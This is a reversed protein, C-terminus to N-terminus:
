ARFRTAAILLRYLVVANLVHWLFHTGLPLHACIGMDITRFTISALFIAATVLVSRATGPARKLLGLGVGLLALLAPAYAVSGNSLDAVSRGTLVDLAPTLGFSFAAFALTLATAALPRFGFFRAMALAFFGFIFVAIPIVDALMSWRNALTHFLFSGIGVVFTVAALALVPGDGRARRAALGAAILFAGNTLANIPEAWFSADGRECYGQVSEFWSADM